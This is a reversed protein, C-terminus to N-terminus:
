GDVNEEGFDEKFLDELTGEEIGCDDQATDGDETTTEGLCKKILDKENPKFDLDPEEQFILVVAHQLPTSCDCFFDHSHVMANMWKLNNQRISSKTPKLRTTM